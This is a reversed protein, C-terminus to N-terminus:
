LRENEQPEVKHQPDQVDVAANVLVAFLDHTAVALQAFSPILHRHGRRELDDEVLVGRDDHERHGGGSDSDESEPHEHRFTVVILREFGQPVTVPEHPDADRRDAVAVHRGDCGCTPDDDEEDCHATEEDRCDESTDHSVQQAWSTFLTEDRRVQCRLLRLRVVAVSGGSHNDSSEVLSLPISLRRFPQSCAPRRQHVRCDFLKALM